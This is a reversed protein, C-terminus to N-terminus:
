DSLKPALGERPNVMPEVKRLAGRIHLKILEVLEDEHILPVRRSSHILYLTRVLQGDAIKRGALEGRQLEGIVSGYPMISVASGEVVLSKMISVSSAEFGIIPEIGLKEAAQMVLQYVHDREGALVMPQKLVDTLAIPGPESMDSTVFLLEEEFLPVRALGPREPVEYALALHVEDREIADILVFSMEEVVSLSVGQMDDRVRVMLGAGFLKGLGPTLGLTISEAATGKHTMVEQKILDVQRLVERARDYLIKGVETATVGRSHRILLPVGLEEELQRIQLGLAPQAVYLQEAARTINGAEVTQAFYRLQRLNM